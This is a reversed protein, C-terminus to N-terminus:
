TPQSGTPVPPPVLSESDRGWGWRCWPCWPELPRHVQMSWAWYAMIAVLIVQSLKSVPPAFYGTVPIAIGLVTLAIRMSDRGHFTKLWHRKAKAEAPGDLPMDNGCALCIRQDHFIETAYLGALTGTVILFSVVAVVPHTATFTTVLYLPLVAATIIRSRHGLWAALRNHRHPPHTDSSPM